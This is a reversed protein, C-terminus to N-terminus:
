QLRRRLITWVSATKSSSAARWVAARRTAGSWWDRTAGREAIEYVGGHSHVRDSRLAVLRVKARPDDNLMPDLNFAVHVIFRECYLRLTAFSFVHAEDDFEFVIASEPTLELRDAADRLARGHEAFLSEAWHRREGTLESLLLLAVTGRPSASVLMAPSPLSALYPVVDASPIRRLIPLFTFDDRGVVADPPAGAWPNHAAGAEFRLLAFALAAAQDLSTQM